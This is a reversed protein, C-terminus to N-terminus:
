AAFRPESPYSPARLLKWNDKCRGDPDQWVVCEVRDNPKLPDGREALSAKWREFAEEPNQSSWRFFYRGRGTGGAKEELADLRKNRMSM